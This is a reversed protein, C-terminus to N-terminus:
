SFPPGCVAKSCVPADSTFVRLRLATQVLTISRAGVVFQLDMVRAVVFGAFGVAFRRFGDDLLATGEHQQDAAVVEARAVVISRMCIASASVM